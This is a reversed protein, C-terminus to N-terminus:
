EFFNGLSTNTYNQISTSPFYQGMQMDWRRYDDITKINSLQKYINWEKKPVREQLFLKYDKVYSDLKRTFNLMSSIACGLNSYLVDSFAGGEDSYKGAPYTLTKHFLEISYDADRFTKLNNKIDEYVLRYSHTMPKGLQIQKGDNYLYNGMHHASTHTTSDYSIHWDEKYLGSRHMAIFPFASNLSGLGLFHINKHTIDSRENLIHGALVARLLAEKRGSGFTGGGMAIGGIFQRMDEPIEKLAADVWTLATDVDNGHVIFFPLCSTQKEIYVEIQDRLNQGTEKAYRELNERDFFRTTMDGRKSKGSTILPIVDFSMGVDAYKAQTEYIKRKIEPTVSKGQTIIQLGGSDAHTKYFSDRYHNFSDGYKSGETFANFLLSFRHGNAGDMEKFFNKILETNGDQQCQDYTIRLYSCGSAVYELKM